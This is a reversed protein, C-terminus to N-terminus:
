LTIVLKHQLLEAISPHQLGNSHPPLPVSVSWVKRVEEIAVSANSEFIRIRHTSSSMVSTLLYLPTAMTFQSFVKIPISIKSM